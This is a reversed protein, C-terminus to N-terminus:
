SATAAHLRHHALVLPVEERPTKINIGGLSGKGDSRGRVDLKHEFRTLWRNPDDFSAWRNQFSIVFSVAFGTTRQEEGPNALPLRTGVFSTVKIIPLRPHLFEWQVFPLMYAKSPLNRRDDRDIISIPTRLYGALDRNEGYAVTERNRGSHLIDIAPVPHEEVGPRRAQELARAVADAIVGRTSNDGFWHPMMVFKQKGDEEIRQYRDLRNGGHSRTAGYRTVGEELHEYEVPEFWPHYIFHTIPDMPLFAEGTDYSNGSFSATGSNRNPHYRFERKVLPRGEEERKQFVEVYGKLGPFLHLYPHDRTEEYDFLTPPHKGRERTIYWGTGISYGMHSRAGQKNPLPIAENPNLAFQDLDMLAYIDQLLVEDNTEPDEPILDEPSMDGSLTKPAGRKPRAPEPPGPPEPTATGPVEKRIVRQKGGPTGGPVAARGTEPTGSAEATMGTEPTEAPEETPRFELRQPRTPAPVGAQGRTQANTEAGAQAPAARAGPPEAGTPGEEGGCATLMISLALATTVATIKRFM